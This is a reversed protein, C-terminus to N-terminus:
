PSREPSSIKTTNEGAKETGETGWPFVFLISLTILLVGGIVIIQVPKSPVNEHLVYDVRLLRSLDM